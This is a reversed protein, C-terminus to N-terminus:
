TADPDFLHATQGEVGVGLAPSDQESHDTARNASHVAKSETEDAMLSAMMRRPSLANLDLMAGKMDEAGVGSAAAIESTLDSAAARFRRVYRAADAAARPLRDPGFVLLGIVGLILLEGIGVDFMEAARGKIGM